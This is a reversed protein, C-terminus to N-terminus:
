RMVKSFGLIEVMLKERVGKSIPRFNFGVQLWVLGECIGMFRPCFVQGFSQSLARIQFIGM